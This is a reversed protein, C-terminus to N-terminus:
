PRSQWVRRRPTWMVGHRNASPIVDLTEPWYESMSYLSPRQAQKVLSPTPSLAPPLPFFTRSPKHLPRTKTPQTPHLRPSCSSTRSRRTPRDSPNALLADNMSRPSRSTHFPTTSAHPATSPLNSCACPTIGWRASLGSQHEVAAMFELMELPRRIQRAELQRMSNAVLRELRVIEDKLNSIKARETLLSFRAAARKERGGRKARDAAERAEQEGVRHAAIAAKIAAKEARRPLAGTEAMSKEAEEQLYAAREPAQPAEGHGDLQAELTKMIAVTTFARRLRARAEAASEAEAAAEAAVAGMAEAAAAAMAVREAESASTERALAATRAQEELTLAATTAATMPGLRRRALSSVQVGLPHPPEDVQSEHAQDQEDDEQRQTEEEEQTEKEKSAAKEQEGKFAAMAAAWLDGETEASSKRRLFPPASTSADKLAIEEWMTAQLAADATAVPNAAAWLEAGQRDLLRRARALTEDAAAAQAAAAREAEAEEEALADDEDMAHSFWAEGSRQSAFSGRGRSSSRRKLQASHATISAIRMNTLEEYWADDDDDDSDTVVRARPDTM